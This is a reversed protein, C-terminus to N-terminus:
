APHSASCRTCCARAAAPPRPVAWLHVGTLAQGPLAERWAAPLQEAATPPEGGGLDALQAAQLRRLFTWTVFETHLEWRLRARGV